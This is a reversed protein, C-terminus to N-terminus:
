IINSDIFGARFGGSPRSTAICEGYVSRPVLAAGRETSSPALTMVHAYVLGFTCRPCQGRNSVDGCVRADTPVEAIQSEEPDHVVSRRHKTRLDCLACTTPLSCSERRQVKISYVWLM